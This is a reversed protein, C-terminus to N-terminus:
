TQFSFSLGLSEIAAFCILTQNGSGSTIIINYIDLLVGTPQGNIENGPVSHDM